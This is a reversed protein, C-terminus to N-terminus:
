PDWAWNSTETDLFIIRAEKYRTNTDSWVYWDRRPNDRSSRSEQFWPHHDPNRSRPGVGSVESFGGINWLKLPSLRLGRHRLWRRAPAFPLIAHAMDRQDGTGPPLRA